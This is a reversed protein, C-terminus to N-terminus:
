HPSMSMQRKLEKTYKEQIAKPQLAISQLFNDCQKKCTNANSVELTTVVETPVRRRERDLRQELYHNWICFPGWKKKFLHYFKWVLEAGKKQTTLVHTLTRKVMFGDRTFPAAKRVETYRFNRGTIGQSACFKKFDDFLWEEHKGKGRCQRGDFRWGVTELLNIKESAESM